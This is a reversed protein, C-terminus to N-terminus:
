LIHELLIDYKGLKKYYITYSANNKAYLYVGSVCLMFIYICVYLGCQFLDIGQM